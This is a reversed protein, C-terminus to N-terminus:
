ADKKKRQPAAAKVKKAKKQAMGERVKIYHPETSMLMEKNAYVHVVAKIVQKGFSSTVSRLIMLEPNAGIKGGILQKIEARKPTPGGFDIQVQVEKRDFLKNDISELIEVTM